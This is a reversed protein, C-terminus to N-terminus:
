QYRKQIIQRSKPLHCASVNHLKDLALNLEMKKLLSEQIQAKNLPHQLVDIVDSVQEHEICLPCPNTTVISEIQDIVPVSKVEPITMQETKLKKRDHLQKEKFFVSVLAEQINKELIELYLLVNYNNITENHGAFRLNLQQDLDAMNSENIELDDLYDEKNGERGLRQRSLRFWEICFREVASETTRHISVMSDVVIRMLPLTRVAYNGKKGYWSCSTALNNTFIKSLVRNINDRLDKGGVSKVFAAIKGIAEYLDQVNYVNETNTRLEDEIIIVPTDPTIQRQPLDYEGNKDRYDAASSKPTPPPTIVESSSGSSSTYNRHYMKKKRRGKGKEVESSTTYNPNEACKRARELTAANPEMTQFGFSVPVESYVNESPLFIVAFKKESMMAWNKDIHRMDMREKIRNHLQQLPLRSSKLQKKIEFMHNEFKFASFSDLSGHTKVDEALHILNHVNYTVYETGFIYPFKQVFYVGKLWLTLIRKTVGLLVLHMYDLPVQKIIDIDLTELITPGRHHEPQTRNRFSDNTRPASNDSLFVVRREVYDGECICKCCGFYGTHNKVNLIFAKAPADSIICNLKLLYTKEGLVLGSSHLSKYEEVFLKLFENASGPKSLGHFLGIMFPPFNNYQNSVLIDGLIPWFQSGSSKSIPLGDININLLLETQEVQYKLIHHQIGVALGFHIYHGGCLPFTKIENQKPTHMFTRADKPLAHGHSRLIGLLDNICSQSVNHQVFCERLQVSLSPKSDMPEIVEVDEGMSLSNPCMLSASENEYDFLLHNSNGALSETEIEINSSQADFRESKETAIKKSSPEDSKASSMEKSIIRRKQRESLSMFTRKM